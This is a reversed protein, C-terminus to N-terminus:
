FDISSVPSTSNVKNKFATENTFTKTSSSGVSRVTVKRNSPNIYALNSYKQTSKNTITYTTMTGSIHGTYNDKYVFNNCMIKGYAITSYLRHTAYNNGVKETGSPGNYSVSTSFSYSTALKVGFLEGSISFSANSSKSNSVGAEVKKFYHGKLVGYSRHTSQSTLVWTYGGMKLKNNSNLENQLRLGEEIDDKTIFTDNEEMKVNEYNNLADEATYNETYIIEGETGANYNELASVSLINSSLSTMVAIGLILLICKKM